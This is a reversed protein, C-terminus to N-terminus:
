SRLGDAALVEALMAIARQDLARDDIVVQVGPAALQRVREAAASSCAVVDVRQGLRTVAAGEVRCAGVLVINPLAANAISHELTTRRSWPTPCSM